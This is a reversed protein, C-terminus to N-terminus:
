TLRLYARLRATEDRRVPSLAHCAPPLLLLLTLLQPFTCKRVKQMESNSVFTRSASELSEHLADTIVHTIAEAQQPTLGEAELRKVQLVDGAVLASSAPVAVPASVMRGCLHLGKPLPIM